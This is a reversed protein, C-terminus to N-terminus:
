VLQRLREVVGPDAYYVGTEIDAILQRLQARLTKITCRPGRKPKVTCPTSLIWWEGNRKEARIDGIRILHRVAEPKLGTARAYDRVTM